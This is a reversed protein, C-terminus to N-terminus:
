ASEQLDQHMRARVFANKHGYLVSPVCACVHLTELGNVTDNHMPNERMKWQIVAM